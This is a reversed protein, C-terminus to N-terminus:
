AGLDDTGYRGGLREIEAMVQLVLNRSNLRFNLFPGMARAEGLLGDPSPTIAAALTGALEAPNRGQAKAARFCPFSLDAPVNAKPAALAISEPAVLGRAEIATRAEDEFRDLAYEM